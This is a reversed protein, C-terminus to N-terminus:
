AEPLYVTFRSGRGPASEVRIWGKHGRLIGQVAALGLGRGMMRTTFFPDFIKRATGHDMGEGDDEIELVVYAGPGLENAPDVGSAMPETTEVVGTRIVVTGSGLGIAESSNIVLNMVLQQLQWPDAEIAPVEPALELRLEVNRPVSTRLVDQLEGVTRSLDIRRIVFKGKGSYALMQRTLAAARESATIVERLMSQV